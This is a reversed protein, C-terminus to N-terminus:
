SSAASSPEDSILPARRPSFSSLLIRFIAEAVLGSGASATRVRVRTRPAEPLSFTATM